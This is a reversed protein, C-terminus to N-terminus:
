IRKKNAVYLPLAMFVMAGIINGITVPIINGFFGAVNVQAHIQQAALGYLKEAKEVYQPNQAALIGAPLYFMNAVSHEWGAVVFAMIPFFVSMLKGIADKTANTMLVAACVLINCLIGSVVARGPQMSCKGYATKIMFAGMGGESYDFIGSCSVLTAILISGALNSIWVIGLVKVMQGATYRRDWMGTVMLCDGTFLEGGIMVIMMLGVPFVVATSLRALGTNTVQHAAVSSAAAGFAIFGGAMLGLVICRIVPLRVRNEGAQMIRELVQAPTNTAQEM